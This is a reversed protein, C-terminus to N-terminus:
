ASYLSFCIIAKGQFRNRVKAGFVNECPLGAVSVSEFQSSELAQIKNLFKKQPSSLFNISQKPTFNPIVIKKLEELEQMFRLRTAKLAIKLAEAEASSSSSDATVDSSAYSVKTSCETTKEVDVVLKEEESHM